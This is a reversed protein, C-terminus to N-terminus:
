FKFLALDPWKQRNQHVSVAPLGCFLPTGSAFLRCFWQQICVFAILGPVIAFFDKRLINEKGPV